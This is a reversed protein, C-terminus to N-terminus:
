VTSLRAASVFLENSSLAELRDQYERSKRQNANKSSFFEYMRWYPSQTDSVQTLLLAGEDIDKICQVLDEKRMKVTKIKEILQMRQKNISQATTTPGMLVSGISLQAIASLGYIVVAVAAITAALPFGFAITIAVLAAAAATKALSLMAYRIVSFRSNAGFKARMRMVAAGAGHRTAFIDALEEASDKTYRDRADNGKMTSWGKMASLAYYEFQVVRNNTDVVEHIFGLDELDMRKANDKFVVKVESYDKAKALELSTQTLAVNFVTSEVAFQMFTFAHGVEHLIIAACEQASMAKEDLVYGEDYVMDHNIRSLFGSVRSHKADIFGEIVGQTNKHSRKYASYIDEFYVNGLPNTGVLQDLLIYANDLGKELHMTTMIGTHDFVCASVDSKFAGTLLGGSRVREILSVLDSFLKGSQFAISETGITLHKM